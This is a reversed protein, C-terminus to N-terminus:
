KRPYAAAANLIFFVDYNRTEAIPDIYFALDHRFWDLMGAEECLRAINIIVRFAYFEASDILYGHIDEYRAEVFDNDQARPLYYFRIEDKSVTHSAYRSGLAVGEETAIKNEFFTKLTRKVLDSLNAAEWALVNRVNKAIANKRDIEAQAELTEQQEETANALREIERRQLSLEHRQLSLEERQLFVAGALWIVSIMGFVAALLEALAGADRFGQVNDLWVLLGAAVAVGTLILLIGVGPVKSGTAELLPDGEESM